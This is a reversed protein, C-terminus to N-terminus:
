RGRRNLTLSALAHLRSARRIRTQVDIHQATM